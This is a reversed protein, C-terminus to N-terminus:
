RSQRRFPEADAALYLRHRRLDTPLAAQGFSPTANRTALSRALDAWRLDSEILVIARM